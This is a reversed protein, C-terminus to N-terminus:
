TPVKNEHRLKWLVFTIKYTSENKQKNRSNCKQSCIYMLLLLMRMTFFDFFESLIFHIKKDGIDKYKRIELIKREWSTMMSILKSHIVGLPLGWIGTKM